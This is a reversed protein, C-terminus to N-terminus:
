VDTAGTWEPLTKIHDYANKAPNANAPALNAVSFLDDYTTATTSDFVYTAFDVPTKGAASAAADKFIAVQVRAWSLDIRRHVQVIRNYSSGHTTGHEDEYSIQLAM